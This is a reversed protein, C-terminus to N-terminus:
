DFAGVEPCNTQPNQVLSETDIGRSTLGSYAEDIVEQSPQRDRTLVYLKESKTGAIARCGYVLAYNDYDTEIINYNPSTPPPGIQRGFVALLAARQTPITAIAAGEIRSYSGRAENYGRNIVNIRPLGGPRSGDSYFVTDCNNLVFSTQAYKSYGHWKGLYARADFDRVVEYVPCRGQSVKQALSVQAVVLLLMWPVLSNMNVERDTRKAKQKKFLTTSKLEFAFLSSGM